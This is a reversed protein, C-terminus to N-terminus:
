MLVLNRTTPVIWSGVRIGKLGGNKFMPTGEAMQNPPLSLDELIGRWCRKGSDISVLQAPYCIITGRIDDTHAGYLVCTSGTTGYMYDSPQIQNLTCETGDRHLTKFSIQSNQSITGAWRASVAQTADWSPSSGAQLINFLTGAQFRHWTGNQGGLACAFVFSGDHAKVLYTRIGGYRIADPLLQSNLHTWENGTAPPRADVAPASYDPCSKSFYFQVHPLLSGWWDMLLYFTGRYTRPSRLLIWARPSTGNAARSLDSASLWNDGASAVLSGTGAKGCSALVTWSGMLPSILGRKMQYLITRTPTDNSGTYYNGCVWTGPDITEWVKRWGQEYTMRLSDREPILDTRPVTM